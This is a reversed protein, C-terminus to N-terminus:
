KKEDKLPFEVPFSHRLWIRPDAKDKLLLPNYDYEFQLLMSPNLRYELGLRHRLQLNYYWNAIKDEPSVALESEVLGTEVQGIYLLYLSNSLHKGLTLRSSRLLSPRGGVISNAPLGGNQANSSTLLNRTFRSSFRVVDLGLKRELAREVPRLFPRIILHDTGISVADKANQGLREASYGLTALLQGQTEGLLAPNDSSLKFFANQFRGRPLEQGTAPDTTYLTLHVNQPFDTSDTVVAHGRGYVIPRWDSRDFEAGCSEVQFSMDLYEVVGRQSTIKGEAFFSSDALVGSMRLVSEEDNLGLSVFVEDVATPIAIVYRNDRRSRALVNWNLNMLVKLATSDTETSEEFPFQFNVNQMVFAGSLVPHAWPGTVIFEDADGRQTTSDRLGTIWFRGTEHKQMLGPINLPLGNESSKVFLAGLYIQSDGLRLTAPLLSDPSIRASTQLLNEATNMPLAPVREENRLTFTADAIKGQVRKVAVFTGREDTSLEGSVDKIEPTIKTLHVREASFALRSDPLRLKKYPGAVRLNLKGTSQVSKFYTTLEPLVALFNGEGHLASAVENATDFPLFGAGSLAFADHKYDIRPWYMGYRSLRAPTSSASNGEANATVEEFNFWRVAGERAAIKGFLPIGTNNLFDALPGRASLAFSLAGRFNENPVDALAQLFEDSKISAGQAALHLAEEASRYEATANIYPQRDKEIKLLALQWGTSDLNGEGHIFFNGVENFFGDYLWFSSQGRPQDLTGQLNIEASLQGRYRPQGFREDDILKALDANLIRLSGELARRGRTQVRLNGALWKEAHVDSIAIVSDRVHCIYSATFGRKRKPFFDLTGSIVRENKVLPLMFANLELWTAQNAKKKVEARLTLSDLHGALTFDFDFDASLSRAWEEGLWTSLLEAELGQVRFRPQKGLHWIRATLQSNLDPRQAHVLITDGQLAFDGLWHLPQPARELDCRLQGLIQPQALPGTIRARAAFRLRPALHKSPISDSALQLLKMEPLAISGNTQVTVALPFRADGCDMKGWGEWALTHEAGNKKTSLAGRGQWRLERRARMQGLSEQWAPAYWFESELYQVRQGYVLGHRNFIKAHLRPARLAGYVSGSLRWNGSVLERDQPQAERLFPALWEGLALSDSAFTLDVEPELNLAAALTANSDVRASDRPPLARQAIEALTQFFPLSMVHVRGALRLPQDNVRQRATEIKLWGKEIRAALQLSDVRVLATHEEALRATDPWFLLQAARLNLEGDLNVGARNPARTCLIRGSLAGATMAVRAPLPVPLKGRPQWDEVKLALSDLALYRLDIETALSLASSEWKALYGHIKLQAKWNGLTRVWGNIERLVEVAAAGTDQLVIKGHNLEITEVIRYQGALQRWSSDAASALIAASTDAPNKKAPSLFSGASLSLTPNLISLHLLPQQSKFVLRALEWYGFRVTIEDATVFFRQGARSAPRYEVEYLDLGRWHVHLSDYRVSAGFHQDLGRVVYAELWAQNDYLTWLWVGAALGLMAALLLFLRSRKKIFLPM